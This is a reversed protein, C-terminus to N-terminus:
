NWTNNDISYDTVTYCEVVEVLAAKNEFDSSWEIMTLSNTLAVVLLEM